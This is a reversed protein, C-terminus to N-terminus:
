PKLTAVARAIQQSIKRCAEDLGDEDRGGESFTGNDTFSSQWVAKGGADTLKALVRINLRYRDTRQLSKSTIRERWSSVISCKLFYQPDKTWLLGMSSFTREIYTDLIMGAEQLHTQNVSQELAIKKGGTAGDLVFGYSCAIVSTLCLM